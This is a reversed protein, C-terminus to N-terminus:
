IMGLDKLENEFKAKTITPINEIYKVIIPDQFEKNEKCKYYHDKSRYGIVEAPNGLVIALPPVNKTVVSGMSVIAGEGIEIGPMIMVGWGIWAFERIIVPKLDLNDDFPIRLSNRYRHQSTLITCNDAIGSNEGMFFGGQSDIFTGSHIRVRDKLIVRKPVNIIACRDIKVDKGCERFQRSALPQNELYDNYAWSIVKYILTNGILKKILKKM